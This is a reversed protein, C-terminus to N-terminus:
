ALGTHGARTHAHTHTSLLMALAHRVLPLPRLGRAAGAPALFATAHPLLLQSVASRHGCAVTRQLPETPLAAACTSTQHGHRRTHSDIFLDLLTPRMRGNCGAADGCSTHGTHGGPALTNNIWPPLTPTQLTQPVLMRGDVGSTGAAGAAGADRDVAEAVPDAAPVAPTATITHEYQGAPVGTVGDDIGRKPYQERHEAMTSATRELGDTGGGVNGTAGTDM